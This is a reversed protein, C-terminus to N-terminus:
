ANQGLEDYSVGFLCVANGFYNVGLSNKLIPHWHGWRLDCDWEFPITHLEADFVIKIADTALPTWVHFWLPDESLIREATHTDLPVPAIAYHEEGDDDELISILFFKHLDLDKLTKTEFDIFEAALDTENNHVITPVGNYLIVTIDNPFQKETIEIESDSGFFSKIKEQITNILDDYSISVVGVIGLALILAVIQPGTLGAIAAIAAAIANTMYTENAPKPYIQVWDLKDRISLIGNSLQIDTVTSEILNEDAYLEITIIGNQSGSEIVLTYKIKNYSLGSDTLGSTYITKSIYKSGDYYFFEDMKEPTIQSDADAPTSIAPIVLLFAVILTCVSTLKTDM